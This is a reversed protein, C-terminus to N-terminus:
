RENFVRKIIKQEFRHLKKRESENEHHIGLLHLTGHVVAHCLAWELGSSISRMCQRGRDGIPEFKDDFIKDKQFSPCIVIEGKYDEEGSEFTLVDTVSAKKYYERNLKHIKEPTVLVISCSFHEKIGREELIAFVCKNLIESSIKFDTENVVSCNM